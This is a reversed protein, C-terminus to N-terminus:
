QEIFNYNNINNNIKKNNNKSNTNFRNIQRLRFTESNQKLQKM